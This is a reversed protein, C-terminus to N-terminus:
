KAKEYFYLPSMSKFMNAIKVITSTWTIKNTVTPTKLKAESKIQFSALLQQHSFAEKHDPTLFYGLIM